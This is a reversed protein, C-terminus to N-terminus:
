KSGPTSEGTLRLEQWPLHEVDCLEVISTPAMLRRDDRAIWTPDQSNIRVIFCAYSPQPQGTRQEPILNLLSRLTAYPASYEMGGPANEKRTQIEPIEYKLPRLYLNLICNNHLNLYKPFAM